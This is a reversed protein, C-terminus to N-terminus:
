YHVTHTKNITPVPTVNKHLLLFIENIFWHTILKITNTLIYYNKSPIYVKKFKYM